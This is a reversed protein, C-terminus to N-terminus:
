QCSIKAMETKGRNLIPAETGAYDKQLQKFAVCADSNRKLGVLSMGLKLLNSAAKSGKPEAKYAEAFLRAAEGFNGRVYFTEAYWYRANGMLESKPFTKIFKSFEQEARDFNRAKIYSYAYDYASVAPDASANGGLTGLQGPQKTFKEQSSYSFEADSPATNVNAGTPQTTPQASVAVDNNMPESPAFTDSSAGGTGRGQEIDNIRVQMDGTVRALEDRLKRIEYSQEEVQGSLRRIESELDQFRGEMASLSSPDFSQALVCAPAVGILFMVATTARLTKKM